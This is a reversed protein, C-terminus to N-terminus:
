KKIVEPNIFINELYSTQMQTLIMTLIIKKSHRSKVTNVTKQHPEIYNRIIVM